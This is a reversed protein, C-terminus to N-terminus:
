KFKIEIKHKSNNLVNKETFCIIYRGFKQIEIIIKKM